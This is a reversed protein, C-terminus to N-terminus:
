DANFIRDLQDQGLEGKMFRDAALIRDDQDFVGDDNLDFPDTLTAFVAYRYRAPTDPRAAPEADRLDAEHVDAGRVDIVVVADPFGVLPVRQADFQIHATRGEAGVLVAADVEHVRQRQGDRTLVRVAVDAAHTGDPVAVTFGAAGRVDIVLDALQPNQVNSRHVQEVWAPASAAAPGDGDDTIQQLCWQYFHNSSAICARKLDADTYDGCACLKDEYCGDCYEMTYQGNTPSNCIFSCDEIQATARPATAAAAIVAATTVALRQTPM